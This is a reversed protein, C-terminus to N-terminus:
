PKITILETELITEFDANDVRLAFGIEEIEELATDHSLFFVCARQKGGLISQPVGSGASVTWDNIYADTMFVTIESSTKNEVLLTINTGALGEMQSIESYRVCIVDDEYVIEEVTVPAETKQLEKYDQKLERYKEELEEYEELLEDYEEQSAGASCGVLLMAIIALLVVIKKMISGKEM